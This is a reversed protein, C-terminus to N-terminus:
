LDSGWQQGGNNENMSKLAAYGLGLEDAVGPRFNEVFVDARKLLERSIRKGEETKLNLVISEKNRNLHAFNPSYFRDSAFTRYPDGQPPAEIKIIRVGLDGLIQTAYPGTVFTSCEVVTIGELPGM